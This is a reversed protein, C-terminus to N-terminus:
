NRARRSSGCCTPRFVRRNHRSGPQRRELAFRGQADSTGTVTFQEKAPDDFVVWWLRAAGVPKGDSDVVRGTVRRIEPPKAAPRKSETSAALPATTAANPKRESTKKRQDTASSDRERKDEAGTGGAEPLDFRLTLPDHKVITPTKYLGVHGDITVEYRDMTLNKPFQLAFEGRENTEAYGYGRNGRIGSVRAKAIPRGRQDILAGTRTETSSLVIAPLEFEKLGPPVQIQESWPEGPQEYHASMERPMSIVQTYVPGALVRAEYHGQSDSTVDSGQRGQGYHVFIEAGAVPAHTDDTRVTGKVLVLTEMPIDLHVTKGAKVVFKKPLRPALQSKAPLVVQLIVGAGDAIAPIRFRGQEDTEVLAEGETDWVALPRQETQFLLKVGRVWRPDDAILRGEISGAARVEITRVPPSRVPDDIRQQQTGFRATRIQLQYLAKRSLSTLRVRGSADTTRRLLELAGAPLIEYGRPTRYHLPEVVAGALPRGREDTVRYDFDTASELSIQLDVHAFVAETGGTAQVAKLNKGPALVWVMDALPRTSRRPKWAAPAELAFRGQTDSTGEITYQRDNLSSDVVVWWLRAAKVSQGTSDVVRGTVRRTKATKAAPRTDNKTENPSAAKASAAPAATPPAATPPNKKDATGASMAWAASGLGALLLVLAAPLWERGPPEPQRGKAVVRRVRSLLNGGTAALALGPARERLEELALLMRGVTGRDGVLSVALDDCCNEREQRIQRSLWWVAPHYFFVTEVLLQFANVLWDHRRIHALEHALLAELQAATLGTLVCGPLLILPRLYGVAMPVGVRVSQAIGVTRRLGLRRALDELCQTISEPVPSLGVRRLRWQM